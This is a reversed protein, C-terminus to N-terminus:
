TPSCRYLWLDLSSKTNVRQLETLCVCNAAFFLVLCCNLNYYKLIGQLIRKPICFQLFISTSSLDGPRHFGYQTVQNQLQFACQPCSPKNWAHM